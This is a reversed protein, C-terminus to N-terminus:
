RLTGDMHFTQTDPLSDEREIVEYLSSYSGQDGRLGSGPCLHANHSFDQSSLSVKRHQPAYPRSDTGESIVLSAQTIKNASFSM